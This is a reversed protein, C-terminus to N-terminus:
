EAADEMRSDKTISLVPIISRETREIGYLMKGRHSAKASEISKYIARFNISM